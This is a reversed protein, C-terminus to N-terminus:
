APLGRQKRAQRRYFDFLEDPSATYENFAPQTRGTVPKIPPPTRSVNRTPRGAAELKAAFQGLAAARRTASKHKAIAELADPDDHLAAAIKHGDEMEVLLQSLPADAGMAMLAECRQRWDPYTERGREHFEDIARQTDRENILQEAEARVATQQDATMDGRRQQAELQAIRAALQDRERATQAYRATLRSIRKSSPDGEDSAHDAGQEASATAEAAASEPEATAEGGSRSATEREDESTDSM